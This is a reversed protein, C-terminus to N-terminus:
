LRRESERMREEAARRQTIDEVQAVLSTVRGEEDAVRAVSVHAWLGHGDKRVYRKDFELRDAAGTFIAEFVRWSEAVDEPHTLDFVTKERLEAESYGLLRQFAGNAGLYHGSADAVTIGLPANNFTVEFLQERERQLHRATMDRTLKAYGKLAGGPDRLATIVVEAWFRTGDKRVHWGEGEFRGERLAVSLAHEPKGAARDEPPYFHSFHRGLVEDARYGKIREAGANWSSVRGANDLLYIAYDTVSSVLLRFQEDGPDASRALHDAIRTLEMGPFPDYDRLMDCLIRTTSSSSIMRSSM